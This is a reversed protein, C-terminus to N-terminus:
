PTPAVTKSEPPTTLARELTWGRDLRNFLLKRSVVCRPDALWGSTSKTEGFATLTRRPAHPRAPTTLAREVDWGQSLRAKLVVLAVSCRPDRSWAAMSMTAHFATLLRSNQKQYDSRQLEHLRKTSWACNAPTFDGSLTHRQLHATDTYGHSLAWACFAGFDDLWASCVAIGRAGYQAYDADNADLCQRKMAHWLRYLRTPRKGRTAQGHIISQERTQERRLCGCSRTMGVLLNNATVRVSSTGCACQCTYYYAYRKKYPPALKVREVPSIVTLRGFSAGLPITTVTFPARPPRQTLPETLARELTWGRQQRRRITEASVVCRPDALWCELRKTEGFATFGRCRQLYRTYMRAPVWACNDPRYPKDLRVRVLWRDDAYGHTWAWACFGPFDQRWPQCVTM